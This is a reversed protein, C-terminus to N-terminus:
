KKSPKAPREPWWITLRGDKGVKAVFPPSERKVVRRIAPLARVFIAAMEPGSLDVSRKLVMVRAQARRIVRLAPERYRIRYDKTLIIWGRSAVASLWREDITGPTFHQSHTEVRAGAARLAEAIV